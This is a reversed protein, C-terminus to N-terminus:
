KFCCFWPAKAARALATCGYASAVLANEDFRGGSFVYGAPLKGKFYKDCEADMQTARQRNVKKRLEALKRQYALQAPDVEPTASTEATASASPEATASASATPAPEEAAPPAPTLMWMLLAGLVAGVALGGVGAAAVTAGPYGSAARPPPLSANSM